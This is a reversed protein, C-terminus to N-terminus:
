PVYQGGSIINEKEYTQGMTWGGWKVTLFLTTVLFIIQPRVPAPM